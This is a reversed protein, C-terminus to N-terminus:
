WIGREAVTQQNRSRRYAEEEAWHSAIPSCTVTDFIELDFMASSNRSPVFRQGQRYAIRRALRRSGARGLLIRSVDNHWTIVVTVTFRATKNTNNTAPM